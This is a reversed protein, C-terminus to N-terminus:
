RMERLMRDLGPLGPFRRALAEIVDRDSLDGFAPGAGAGHMMGATVPEDPRGSDAYLGGLDLSAPSGGPAAGGGPPNSAPVQALPMARQADVQQQRDGYTQGSSVRIPQANLDSRQSYSKGSEGLREGGSPM